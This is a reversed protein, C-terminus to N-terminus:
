GREDDRAKTGREGSDSYVRDIWLLSNSDDVTLERCTCHISGSLCGQRRTLTARSPVTLLPHCFTWVTCFPGSRPSLHSHSPLTHPMNLHGLIVQQCNVCFMVADRIINNGVNGKKEGM